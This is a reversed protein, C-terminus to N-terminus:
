VMAIAGKAEVMQTCGIAFEQSSGITGAQNALKNKNVSDGPRGSLGDRDRSYRQEM